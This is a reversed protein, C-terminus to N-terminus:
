NSLIGVSYSHTKLTTMCFLTFETLSVHIMSTYFMCTDKPLIVWHLLVSYSLVSSTNQGNVTAKCSTCVTVSSAMQSEAGCHHAQM